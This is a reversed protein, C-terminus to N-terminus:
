QPIPYRPAVASNARRILVIAIKKSNDGGRFPDSIRVDFTTMQVFNIPALFKVKANPNTRLTWPKLPVSKRLVMNLKELRKSGRNDNLAACAPLKDRDDSPLIEDLMKVVEGGSALQLFDYVVSKVNKFYETDGHKVQSWTRDPKPCTSIINKLKKVTSEDM